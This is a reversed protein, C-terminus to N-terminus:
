ATGTSSAPFYSDSRGRSVASGPVFYFVKRASKQSGYEYIDDYFHKYFGLSEIYRKRITARM